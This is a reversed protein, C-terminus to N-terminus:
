NTRPAPLVVDALGVRQRLARFRASPWLPAYVPDVVPITAPWYGGADIARELAVLAGTTDGAALLQFGNPDFHGRRLRAFPEASDGQAILVSILYPSIPGLREAYRRAEAFLGARALIVSGWAITTLNTSDSQNARRIEVLASDMQGDLYYAYAVWSSVVASAPETQRALMFQRLGDRVHGRCLLLKGYQMLPEVDGATRLRVATQFETAASDWQFALEHVLGLASHPTSLTSDLSLARAAAARAAPAAASALLGLSYPAFARALSLGAWADAYNSDLAIAKEFTELGWGRADKGRRAFARQALLYLRYAEPNEVSEPRAPLRLSIRSSAPLVKSLTERIARAIEDRVGSLDNHARDFKDSWLVANDSARVLSALVSLRGGGERMSGMVLYRAGLARGLKETNFEHQDRYSAVGRRSMMQLGPVRSLEISVEDSLGEALARQEPVDSDSLLPLVAVTVDPLPSTVLLRVAVFGAVGVAMVAAVIAALPTTRRKQDPPTGGDPHIDITEARRWEDTTTGDLVELVATATQPRDAPEKELCRMVLSALRENVAPQATRLAVPPTAVHAAILQHMPLDHFPPKGSILEYALCGFSYIDARHDTAPDGVAQEPSMYTPTGIGSGTQTLTTTNGSTGQAVSVAKAIGFDTVVAAGGSLMVNDPKIDRHVVGEGHAHALARAVDRLVSVYESAQLAGGQDIRQRLSSGKEYPMVFYLAGDADGSDYLPVINPHTLRAAIAIERLFRERGLSAALEPRIVKVAVHRNHKTDLALFVRAMGGRGIEREIRYRDGLMEPLRESPADDLMQAFREPAPADLLPASQECEAVLASLAAQREANGGSLLVILSARDAPAADLVVDVLPELEKWRAPLPEARDEDPSVPTTSM